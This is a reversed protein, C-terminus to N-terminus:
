HWAENTGQSLIKNRFDTKAQAEIRSMESVYLLERARAEELETKLESIQRREVFWGTGLAIVAILWLLHRTSIKPLYKMGLITAFPAVFPRVSECFWGPGLYRALPRGSQGLDRVTTVTSFLVYWRFFARRKLTPTQPQSKALRCRPGECGNCVAPLASYM